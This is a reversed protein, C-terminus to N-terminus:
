VKVFSFLFIEDSGLTTISGSSFNAFLGGTNNTLLYRYVRDGEIRRFGYRDSHTHGASGLYLGGEGYSSDHQFRVIEGGKYWEYMVTNQEGNTLIDYSSRLKITSSKAVNTTLWFWDYASGNYSEYM